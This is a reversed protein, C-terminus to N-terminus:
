QMWKLHKGNLSSAPDCQPNEKETLTLEHMLQEGFLSEIKEM